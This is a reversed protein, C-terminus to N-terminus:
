PDTQPAKPFVNETSTHGPAGGEACLVKQVFYLAASRLGVTVLTIISAYLTRWVKDSDSLYQLYRIYICIHLCINVYILM